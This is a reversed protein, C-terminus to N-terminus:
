EPSQRKQCEPFQSRERHITEADKRDNGCGEGESMAQEVEVRLSIHSDEVPLKRGFASM